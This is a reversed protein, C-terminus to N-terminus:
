PRGEGVGALRRVVIVTADDRGRTYDRHIVAAVIAPHRAMLGDDSDTLAWRSSVGDSHMILLAGAPCRYELMHARRGHLGVIGNHSVMGRSDTSSVISGSINGIGAYRVTGSAMIQGAAVAAGRSSVLERHARDFFAVLDGFAHAEFAVAALLAAEAALPGHGLGDAVMVALADDREVICWADGCVQENAAPTSIAAWEFRGGGPETEEGAVRSLVATGAGSTSHIDFTASLRRVAGLGTGATGGSSFGDQLCRQIDAVGPGRDIAVVEVLPRGGVTVRQLLLRGDQGYRSLNTALETAVIAVEACRVDSFGADHALRTAARRADGVQSAEVVPVSLQKTM